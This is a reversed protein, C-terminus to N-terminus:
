TIIDRIVIKKRAYHVHDTMRFNRSSPDRGVIGFDFEDYKQLENWICFHCFDCTDATLTFRAEYRSMCLLHSIIPKGPWSRLIIMRKWKMHMWIRANVVPSHRQCFSKMNLIDYENEPVSILPLMIRIRMLAGLKTKPCSNGCNLM